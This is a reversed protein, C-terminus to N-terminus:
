ELDGAVFANSRRPSYVASSAHQYPIGCSCRLQHINWYYFAGREASIDQVYPLRLGSCLLPVRLSPSHGM